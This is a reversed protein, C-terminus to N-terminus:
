IGKPSLSINKADILKIYEVLADYNTVNYKDIMFLMPYIRKIDKYITYVESSQSKYDLDSYFEFTIKKTLSLINLMRSNDSCFLKSIEILNNLKTLKNDSGNKTFIESLKKIYGSYNDILSSSHNNYYMSKCYDIPYKKLFDDIDKSLIDQLSIWKPGIKKARTSTFAVIKKNHLNTLYDIENWTLKIPNGNSSFHKTQYCYEVFIGDYDLDVEELGELVQLGNTGYGLKYAQIKGASVTNRTYSKRASKPITISSIQIPELHDILQNNLDFPKPTINNEKCETVYENYLDKVITIRRYSSFSPDDYLHQFLGTPVKEGKQTLVKTVGDYVNIVGINNGHVYSFKQKKDDRIFCTVSVGNSALDSQYINLHLKLGNWTIRSLFDRLFSVSFENNIDNCSKVAELYTSANEIKDKAMKALNLAVEALRDELVKQTKEDFHISDRSASLSLEGVNFYLAIPQRILDNISISQVGLKVLESGLPLKGYSWNTGYITSNDYRIGDVIISMNNYHHYDDKLLKWGDGSLIEKREKFSIQGDPKVTPRVDWYECCTIVCSKFEEFDKRKIPIVISTGNSESTETKSSLIIKGAKSEDIYAIYTYRIGDFITEISFTDSYSFPTKAGLGFGGTQVNDGRKTSSGYNIFITEMREPSIGPGFDTIRLESNFATPLQIVIPVDSKGVERHADRANCSIERVIALIPNKYMKNRLIDFILGINGVGFTLEKQSNFSETYIDSDPLKM